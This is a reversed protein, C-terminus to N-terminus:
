NKQRLKFEHSGAVPLGEQELMWIFTETMLAKWKDFLTPHTHLMALNMSSLEAREKDDNSSLFCRVVGAEEDTRFALKVPSPQTSAM